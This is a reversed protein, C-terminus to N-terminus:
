ANSSRLKSSFVFKCDLVSLFIYTLIMGVLTSYSFLKSVDGSNLVGVVFFGMYSSLIACLKFKKQRIFHRLLQSLFACFAAFLIAGIFFFTKGFYFLSSTFLTGTVTTGNVVSEVSRGIFLTLMPGYSYHLYHENNNIGLLELPTRGLAGIWSNFIPFGGIEQESLGWVYWSVDGTLVTARNLIYDLVSLGYQNDSDFLVAAGVVAFISLLAFKFIVKLNPELFLCFLLPTFLTVALLKFGLGLVALSSVFCIIYFKSSHSTNEKLILAAMCLGAPLLSKVTLYLIAGFQLNVRFESKDVEGLVVYVGGFLFWILLFSILAFAFLNSIFHNRPVVVEKMTDMGSPFITKRFFFSSFYYSLLFFIFYITYALTVGNEYGADNLSVSYAGREMFFVGILPLLLYGFLIFKFM